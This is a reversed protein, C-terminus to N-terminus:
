PFLNRVEPSSVRQVEVSLVVCFLKRVEVRTKGYRLALTETGSPAPKRVQLRRNGYRFAGTETGSPAPKRVQLRRNGYRFAGVFSFLSQLSLVQLM